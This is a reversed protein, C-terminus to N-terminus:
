YGDLMLPAYAIFVLRIFTYCEIYVNNLNKCLVLFVDIFGNFEYM